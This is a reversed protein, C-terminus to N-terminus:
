IQQELSISDFIKKVHIITRFIVNIVTNSLDAFTTVSM